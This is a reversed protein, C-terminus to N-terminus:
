TAASGRVLEIARLNAISWELPLPAPGGGLAAASFEEVMVRYPDEPELSTFPKEVRIVEDDTVVELSQREPSEFSAWISATAGSGFGMVATVTMDVADSRAFARAGAPEGLLWRSVDVCYCGVDMLAGGGLEAQARYNNPDRLRFGFSAAVHRVNRGAMSALLRRMRPNFRYMFAEMLLRGASQAAAAMQEAEAATLAIPKECLVHKGAALARLTWPLHQDNTLPIYVADIEPDALLDDYTAHVRPLRYKDALAQAREQGRSAIALVEAGRAAQLAPLLAKDAIHAAGLV